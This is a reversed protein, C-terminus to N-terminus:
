DEDAVAGLASKLTFSNGAAVQERGTLGNAVIVMDGAHAGITVPVAKFGQSTRVFVM